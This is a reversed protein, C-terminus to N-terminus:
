QHNGGSRFRQSRQNGTRFKIAGDADLRMILHQQKESANIIIRVSPNNSGASYTFVFRLFGELSKYPVRRITFLLSSRSYGAGRIKYEAKIVAMCAKERM